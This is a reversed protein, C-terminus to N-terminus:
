NKPKIFRYKKTKELKNEEYNEAINSMANYKKNDYSHDKLFSSENINNNAMKISDFKNEINKFLKQSRQQALLDCMRKNEIKLINSEELLNQNEYKLDMLLKRMKNDEESNKTSHSYGFSNPAYVNLNNLNSKLELNTQFNNSSLENQIQKKLNEIEITKLHTQEQIDQSYFHM